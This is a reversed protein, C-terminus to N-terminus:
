RFWCLLHGTGFQHYTNCQILPIGAEAAMDVIPACGEVDVSNIIMADVKQAIMTEAQALQKSIDGEADQVLVTVGGVERARAFVANSIDKTFTDADQKTLYAIVYGKAAPTGSSQKPKSCGIVALIAVIGILVCGAKKVNM